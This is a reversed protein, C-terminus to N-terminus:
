SRPGACSSRSRAPTARLPSSRPSGPTSSPPAAGQPATQFIRAGAPAVVVLAVLVAAAALVRLAGVTRARGGATRVLVIVLLAVGGAAMGLLVSRTGTAAAGAVLALMALVVLARAWRALSRAVLAIALSAMALVTLYGGLTTPQGNTSIPRLAVNTNWEFPDLGAIQVAEYSLMAAASALACAALAVLDRRERVCAVVAFYLAAWSALTALGLMRAHSGYLALYRDAAFATALVNVGLFVLVAVHLWSWPVTRRGFQVLLGAIVGALVFALAHGLLARPVVFPWDFGRDFVVPVFLVYACLVAVGFLRLRSARFAEAAEESAREQGRRNANVSPV